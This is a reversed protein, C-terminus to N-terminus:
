ANSSKSSKTRRKKAPPHIIEIIDKLLSPRQAVLRGYAETSQVEPMRTQIFELCRQKFIPCAVLDAVMLRDAVSDVDLRSTLAMVCRQILGPMEFRHAAMLVAVCQDDSELMGNKLTGTYIFSMLAHIAPAELDKITVERERMERMPCSLMGAFFPSRAALIVSHAQIREDGVNITIDAMHGSALITQLSECVEQQAATESHLSSGTGDQGNPIVISLKASVRLAGNLLWGCSTDFVESLALGKVGEHRRHDSMEFSRSWGRSKGSQIAHYTPDTLTTGSTKRNIVAMELSVTCEDPSEDLRKVHVGLNKSEDVAGTDPKVSWAVAIGFRFKGAVLIPGSVIERCDTKGESVTKTTACTAVFNSIELEAEVEQVKAGTKGKM